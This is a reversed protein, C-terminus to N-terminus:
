SAAESGVPTNSSTLLRRAVQHDDFDITRDAFQQTTEHGKGAIVVVDGAGAEALATAIAAERDPEVVVRVPPDAARVGTVIADIIGLPDESRPNDSTVVVVDAGAAAAGMPGRKDRDRDGGAGLVLVLRGGDELTDRVAHVVSRIAEPTHAYDVLVDFPQGADVRELRGRIPSTNAVGHIASAVDVGARVAAVVAQVANTVNYAGVLRTSVELTDEGWRVQATAGARTSREDVIRVTADPSRGVTDVDSGIRAVLRRGWDDDICIVARDCRGPDFLHAKADFYRDMTEHWDLHDQSLNTFVGVAFHTGDVRHLDLGHSSVEMSVADVGRDWMRALLRQLDTGEPTTRGGPEGEGHIRTEVTGLLGTGLGAAGFASELLHAVTTKGNTGTVGVVRLRHSPHGHIAAAAPGTAARVDTVRLSPVDVHVERDVLVAGAGRAVADEVHDHGDTVTGPIACFLGGPRVARSDHTADVLLPDGAQSPGGALLGAAGLDAAITALTAPM